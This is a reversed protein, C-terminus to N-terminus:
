NGISVKLGEEEIIGTLKNVHKKSPAQGESFEYSRGLQEAKSGGGDHYPLLSIKEAGIKKGLDAIRRIHRESDNFGAILPIRLWIHSLKLRSAEALNELILANDVGTARKHEDADLHKIDWLLLDVLPLVTEIKEWPAYGTTDLATHLKREKCMELVHSLFETQLLPEGGSITIGGGSTKYFDEDKVVEDFVEKVEMYTGSRNLSGYICADTCRLCQTCKGWDIKRGEETTLTIAGEPCVKVCAGCGKCHIDRVVLTPFTDQSEPNSCWLCKLPCGKMFVTTRIGPGDHISFRQINFVLGKEEKNSKPAKM